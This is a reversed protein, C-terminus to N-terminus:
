FRYTAIVFCRIYRRGFGFIYTTPDRVSKDLSGDKLFREPDFTEPNPYVEQTLVPLCAIYPM